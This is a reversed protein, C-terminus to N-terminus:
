NSRPNMSAGDVMTGSSGATLKAFSGLAQLRGKEYVKKTDDGM